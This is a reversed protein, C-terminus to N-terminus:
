TLIFRLIQQTNSTVKISDDIREGLVACIHNDGPRVLMIAAEKQPITYKHDAFYDSVKKRGKMGFPIFWDGKEWRRLVFPFPLSSADVIMQGHPQRLPISGDNALVIVEIHRGNFYYRGPGRIVAIADAIATQRETLSSPGPFSASGEVSLLKDDSPLSEVILRTTTTYLRHTPSFFEKGSVTVHEDQLLHQISAVTSSNFGSPELLRYLIYEWNDKSRLLQIDIEAPNLDSSVNKYWSDAIDRVQAFYGMERSITKLFSPNIKEFIPFVLNRLMNRKYETELNTKDIRVGIHHSRVYGEIQDRTFSLLPRFLKAGDVSTDISSGVSSDISSGVSSDVSSGVSVDVSGVLTGSYCPIADWLTMGALGDAGTGRLLNLFLTEVNDNANHAVALAGYGHEACLGAFWQYRLERAAMEISIEHEAAYAKTDFSIVHIDVHHKEAWARVHAEDGNSDEGRLHFNCHAIAFEPHLSSHLFLEAMVMSDPGGSVALLFPLSAAKESSLSEALIKDFRKQM